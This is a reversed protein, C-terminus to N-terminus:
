CGVTVNRISRGSPCGKHSMRSEGFVQIIMSITGM